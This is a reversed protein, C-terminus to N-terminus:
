YFADEFHVIEFKPSEVIAIFDFRIDGNWEYKQLYWEAGRKIASIKAKNMSDEPLGYEANFKLRVEVFVLVNDKSCIIDIESKGAQYNRMLIKYGKKILLNMAYEEGETGKEKKDVAM